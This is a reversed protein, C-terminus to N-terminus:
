GCDWEEHGPWRVETCGAWGMGFDDLPAFCHSEDAMDGTTVLKGTYYLISDSDYLRFTHGKGSEVQELLDGPADHPGTIGTDPKDGPECLHDKTIIWAYDTAM